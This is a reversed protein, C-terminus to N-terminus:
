RVYGAAVPAFGSALGRVFIGLWDFLLAAPWSQLGRALGQNIAEATIDAVNM